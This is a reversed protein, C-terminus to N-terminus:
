EIIVLISLILGVVALGGLAFVFQQLNTFESDIRMQDLKQYNGMLYFVSTMVAYCLICILIFLVLFGVQM